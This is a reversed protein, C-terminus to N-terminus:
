IIFFLIFYNLHLTPHIQCYLWYLVGISFMPSWSESSDRKSRRKMTRSMTLQRKSFSKAMNIIGDGTPFPLLCQKRGDTWQMCLSYNLFGYAKRAEIQFSLEEGKICSAYRNWPWLDHDGPGNISLCQADYRGFPLAYLVEFKTYLDLVVVRM